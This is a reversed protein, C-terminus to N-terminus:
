ESRFCFGLRFFLRGGQLAIKLQEQGVVIASRLTKGGFPVCIFSNEM